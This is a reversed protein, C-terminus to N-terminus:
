SFKIEGELIRVDPHVFATHFSILPLFLLTALQHSPEQACMNGSFGGDAQGGWWSAMELWCMLRFVCYLSAAGIIGSVDCLLLCLFSRWRRWRRGRRRQCVSQVAQFDLVQNTKPLQQYTCCVYVLSAHLLSGAETEQITKMEADVPVRPEAGGCSLICVSPGPESLWTWACRRDSLCIWSSLPVRFIVCKIVNPFTQGDMCWKVTIM